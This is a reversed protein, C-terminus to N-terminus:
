VSNAEIGTAQEVAVLDTHGVVELMADMQATAQGKAGMVIRTNYRRSAATPQARALPGALTRGLIRGCM